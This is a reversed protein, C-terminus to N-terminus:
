NFGVRCYYLWDKKWVEWHSFIFGDSLSCKDPLQLWREVDVMANVFNEGCKSLM